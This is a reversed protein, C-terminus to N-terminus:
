CYIYRLAVAHLDCPDFLFIEECVDPTVLFYFQRFVVLFQSQDSFCIELAHCQVGYDRCDCSMECLM